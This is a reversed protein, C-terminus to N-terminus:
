RPRPMLAHFASVPLALAAPKAGFGFTAPVRITALMASRMDEGAWAGGEDDGEPVLHLKGMVAPSM